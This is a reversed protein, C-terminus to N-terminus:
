RVTFPGKITCLTRTMYKNVTALERKAAEESFFHKCYDPDSRIGSWRFRPGWIGSQPAYDFGVFFGRTPHEINWYQM